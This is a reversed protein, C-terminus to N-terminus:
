RRQRTLGSWLSHDGLAESSASPCSELDALFRVDSVGRPLPELVQPVDESFVYKASSLAAIVDFRVDGALGIRFGVASMLLRHVKEQLDPEEHVLELVEDYLDLVSRGDDSGELMLSVVLTTGHPKLQQLSFHHRRAGETAKVEVHVGGATFDHAATSLVHWARVAAAPDDSGAILVLEGWVGVLSKHADKGLLRFLEGIRDIQASVEELDQTSSLRECISPVLRLFWDQVNPDSAVCEVASYLGFQEGERLRLRLGHRLRLNAYHRDSAQLSSDAVQILLCPNGDQGMGLRLNGGPLLETAYALQSGAGPPTLLEFLRRVELYDLSSGEPDVNGPDNM